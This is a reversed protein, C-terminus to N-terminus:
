SRRRFSLRIPTGEYRYEERIRNELFRAYSFHVLEPDNVHFLFTPPDTRVQSAFYIRLRKGAKSPPAHAAQAELLVENLRSTPIRRLREEQIQLAMPLVQDVGAGELASIFHIPVFDLFKLAARVNEGYAQMDRIEDPVIDWKNVLLLVSKLKDLIMGAIHADQATVGETGDMLLLSVDARGIAKLARMASYKEVGPKIRGRRRIGATDILTIPVDEFTLRTDIADRTTGPHPSVIVREEGLLRNLLSSKGVNPRGVIAIKIGDDEAATEPPRDILETLRDLMDGTGRGHLASIPIPDSLGLEYFEQVRDGRAASDIKNVVLLIPVQERRLIDAIEQDIPSVGSKGDVLFIVAEAELIAQEAQARIQPLYEADLEDGAFPDFGGTDVLDFAVGNWEAETVLRDRTTGPHEHVVALREGVLRNFLTSKGVNPRGVLAVIPKAM